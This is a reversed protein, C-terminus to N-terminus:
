SLYNVGEFKINLEALLQPDVDVSLKDFIVVTRRLDMDYYISFNQDTDIRQPLAICDDYFVKNQVFEQRIANVRAEYRKALYLNTMVVIFVILGISLCIIMLIKSWKKLSKVM